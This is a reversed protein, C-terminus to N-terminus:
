ADDNGKQGEYIEEQESYVGEAAEVFQDFALGEAIAMGAIFKFMMGIAQPQTLRDEEPRGHELRMYERLFAGLSLDFRVLPTFQEEIPPAAKQVADKAGGEILRMQRKGHRRRLKRDQRSM